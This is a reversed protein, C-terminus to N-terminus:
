EDDKLGEDQGPKSQRAMKAQQEAIAQKEADMQQFLGRVKEMSPAPGDLQFGEIFRRFSAKQIEESEDGALIERLRETVDVADGADFDGQPDTGQSSAVGHESLRSEPVPKAPAATLRDGAQDRMRIRRVYEDFLSKRELQAEEPTALLLPLVHFHGWVEVSYELGTIRKFAQGYKDTCRNIAIKFHKAVEAFSELRLADYAGDAWGEVRDWIALDKEAAKENFAGGGFGHEERLRAHLRKVEAVLERQPKRFDFAVLPSRLSSRLAESELAGLDGFAKWYAPTRWVPDEDAADQASAFLHLGVLRRDEPPLTRLLLLALTLPTAVSPENKPVEGDGSEDAPSPLTFAYNGAGIMCIFLFASEDRACEFESPPDANGTTLPEGGYQKALHDLAHRRGWQYIAHRRLFQWRWREPLKALDSGARVPPCDPIRGRVLEITRSIRDEDSATHDAM